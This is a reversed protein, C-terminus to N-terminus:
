RAGTEGSLLARRVNRRWNETKPFDEFSNIPALLDSDRRTGLSQLLAYDQLSAGLVEWRMSDVPGDPGPYVLFTDGYAWGREWALGDQVM